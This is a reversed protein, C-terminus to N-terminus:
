ARLLEDLTAADLVRDALLDLEALSAARLRPEAAVAADPGFRVQLAVWRSSGSLLELM